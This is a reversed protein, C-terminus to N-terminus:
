WSGSAGGGGFDGDGGSYDSSDDSSWSADSSSSGLDTDHDMPRHNQRLGRSSGPGGRRGSPSTGQQNDVYLGVGLAIFFGIMLFLVVIVWVDDPTGLTHGDPAGIVMAAIWTATLPLACARCLTMLTKFARSTLPPAHVEDHHQLRSQHPTNDTAARLALAADMLFVALIFDMTFVVGFPVGWTLGNFFLLALCGALWFPLHAWRSLHRWTITVRAGIVLSLSALALAIMVPIFRRNLPPLRQSGPNLHATKLHVFDVIHHSAGAYDGDRLFPPLGQIGTMALGDPIVSELGTGIELRMRRDKVALVFLVGDHREADGGGWREAARLTYDEIPEPKTSPVILIAMQVGTQQRHAVLRKSIAKEDDHNLADALDTVPSRIVPTADQAQAASTALTILLLAVQLTRQPLHSPSPKM